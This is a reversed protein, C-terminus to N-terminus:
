AKPNVSALIGATCPTCVITNSTPAWLHRGKKRLQSKCICCAEDKGLVIKCFSEPRKLSTEQRAPTNRISAASGVSIKLAGRQAQNADKTAVLDLSPNANANNSKPQEKKRALQKASGGCGQCVFCSMSSVLYHKKGAKLKCQCCSCKQSPNMAVLQLDTPRESIIIALQGIWLPKCRVPQKRRPKNQVKSNSIAIYPRGPSSRVQDSFMADFYAERDPRNQEAARVYRNSKEYDLRAM